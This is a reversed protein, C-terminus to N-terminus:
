NVCRECVGDLQRNLSYLGYGLLALSLVQFGPSYDTFFEVGLGLGFASIIPFTCATCFMTFIGLLLGFGSVMSGKMALKRQRYLQVLGAVLIGCFISFIVSFVLNAATLNAGVVCANNRSGILTSMLYYNFDFMLFAVGLAVFIMM